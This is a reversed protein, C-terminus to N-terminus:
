GAGLELELLTELLELNAILDLDEINELELLMALDDDPLGALSADVERAPHAPAVPAQAIRTEPEHVQTAAAPALAVRPEPAPEAQEVAVLPPSAPQQAAPVRAIPPEPVVSEGGRLVLWVVLGIGAALAVRSLRPGDLWRRRAPPPAVNGAVVPTSADPHAPADVAVPTSADSHATADAAIRAALGAALDSVAAPGALGALALDVNRLEELQRTCFDCAELHARLQAERGPSLQEDILASLDEHFPICAAPLESAM